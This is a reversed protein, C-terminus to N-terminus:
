LRGWAKETLDISRPRYFDRRIFGREELRDLYGAVQGKSRFGMQARIEDITPSCDHENMFTAICRLVRAQKDTLGIM